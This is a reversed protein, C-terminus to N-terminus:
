TGRSGSAAASSSKKSRHVGSGAARGKSRKEGREDGESKGGDTGQTGSRRKLHEKFITPRTGEKPAAPKSIAPDAETPWDERALAADFIELVKAHTLRVGSESTNSKCLAKFQDLLDTLPANGKVAVKRTSGIWGYKAYEAKEDSGFEFINECPDEKFGRDHATWRLIVWLLVWYFSELDHHVSHVASPDRLLEIAFYYYTGTREKGEDDYDEAVRLLPDDESNDDFKDGAPVDKMMSSYDFDHLFGTLREKTSEAILINGLSVDRHLIGVEWAQQHGEIADRMAAVLERTSRFRKLPRGVVDVVIRVLSQERHAYKDGFLLRWTYTEYQPFPLLFTQPPDTSSSPANADSPGPSHESESSTCDSISGGLEPSPSRSAQSVPSSPRPSESSEATEEPAEHFPLEGGCAEWEESELVGLDAGYVMKPLGTRKDDPIANLREYFEREPRRVVQRWAEKLVMLRPPSSADPLHRTDELAHWVMTSRSFLRANMDLVDFLLLARKPADASHYEPVEVRRGKSLETDSPISTDDWGLKGLNEKLWDIDAPVLTRVAPDCGVVPGGVCPHVLRWLFRRLLDPRERYNFPQCVVASSRDFRAIRCTDGYFGITFAYLLGHTFFLNRASTALQRVTEIHVMGRKNFPDQDETAKGELAACISSWSGTTMVLPLQVGPVSIVLDPMTYHHDAHEVFPFPIRKNACEAFYLRRDEPFDSTLENCGNLLFPYMVAEKGLEPTWEAFLDNPVDTPTARLLRPRPRYCLRRPVRHVPQRSSLTRRGMRTSRVPWGQM